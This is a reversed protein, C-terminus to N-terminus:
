GLVLLGDRLVRLIGCEGAPRVHVYDTKKGGGFLEIFKQGVLRCVLSLLQDVSKKGIVDGIGIMPQSEPVIKQTIVVGAGSEDRAPALLDRGPEVLSQPLVLGVVLHGSLQDVRSLIRRPEDIPDLPTAVYACSLSNVHLERLVNRLDKEPDVHLARAAM